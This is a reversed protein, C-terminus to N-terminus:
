NMRSNTLSQEKARQKAAERQAIEEIKDLDERTPLTASVSLWAGRAYIRVSWPIEGAYRLIQLSGDAIVQPVHGQITEQTHIRTGTTGDPDIYPLNRAKDFTVVFTRLPSEDMVKSGGMVM